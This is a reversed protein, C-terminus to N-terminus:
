GTVGTSGAHPVPDAATVRIRSRATAGPIGDATAIAANASTGVPATADIRTAVSVTKSIGPDLSGLAFCANGHVFRARAPTREFTMEAPLVDCVRVHAAAATGTNRVTITFTVSTGAKVTASQATITALLKPQVKEPLYIGADWDYDHQGDALVIQKTLGSAPDADSANTRGTGRAGKKTLEYGDPLTTRDFEVVYAGAALDDFGYAGSGSTTTRALEAGLPDRLIVTMGPVGDEDADQRGNHNDDFWVTDGISAKAPDIATAHSPGALSLLAALSAIAIVSRRIRGRPHSEAM